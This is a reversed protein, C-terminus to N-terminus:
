KRVTDNRLYSLRSKTSKQRSYNPAYMSLFEVCWQVKDDVRQGDPHSRNWLELNEIRNDAKVGNKHHVAESKLLPRGLQQSMILTHESVYGNGSANAHDKAYIKVYGDANVYRGGKWMPHNSGMRTKGIDSKLCGCSWTNHGGVKSRHSPSILSQTSIEKQKGCDCQCFWYVRTGRWKTNTIVIKGKRLVVLKGFRQGTLDVVKGM